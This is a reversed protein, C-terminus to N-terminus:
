GHITLQVCLFEVVSTVSNLQTCQSIPIESLADFEASYLFHHLVSHVSTGAVLDACQTPEYRNM